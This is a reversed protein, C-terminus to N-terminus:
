LARIAAGFQAPTYNTTAGNKERIAKAIDILSGNKVIVDVNAAGSYSSYYTNATRDPIETPSYSDGVLTYWLGDAGDIYAPDPTPLILKNDAVTNTGDGNIAFNPGLKIWKLNRCDNCFNQLTGTTHGNTSAEVGNKAKSTDFSSLDLEELAYCRGFMQDFGTANSTNWKDLGYIHKLNPSNEFMQTFFEVKDTKFSSLDLEEEACNHFMANMNTASSTDWNEIGKRRLNAHAAFHDFNQVKSVDWKSVDIEKLSSCTYFMFSMDTCSSPRWNEVKLGSLKSCNQFMANMTTVQSVDWHSVDLNNLQSCGEFMYYMDTCSSVNWNSVDLDYLKICDEFTSAFTSVKETNWNRVNLEILSSCNLFMGAMDTVNSTDWNTVDISNLKICSTFMAKTNNCVSTVLSPANVTELSECSAAFQLFTIVKSTNFHSLNLAKLKTCGGFMGAMVTTNSTNWNSLDVSELSICQLFMAQMNQVKSTDFSSLDLMTLKQCNTFMNKINTANSTDLCSLGSINSLVIFYSTKNSSSFTYSADASLSIKGSGNGAVFLKTGIVYCTISGDKAASAGWSDRVTVSTDPAYSDVFEIETIISRTITTDNPAFWSDSPALVPYAM